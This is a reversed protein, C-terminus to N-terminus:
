RDPKPDRYSSRASSFLSIPPSLASGQRLFVNFAIEGSMEAFLRGRQAVILTSHLIQPYQQQLTYIYTEYERLSQFPNV